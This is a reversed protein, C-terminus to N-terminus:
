EYFKLNIGKKICENIFRKNTRCPIFQYFSKCPTNSKKKSWHCRFEYGDSHRNEHFILKKKKKAEPNRAWLEKTAKYNCALKSILKNNEDIKYRRKFQKIRLTGLRCPITFEYNNLVIKQQYLTELFDKLINNYVTKKVNYISKKDIKSIYFEYLDKVKYDAKIKGLSRKPIGLDQEM